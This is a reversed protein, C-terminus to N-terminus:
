FQSEITIPSQLTFIVLSEAPIRVPEDGRIVQVVAGGAAGVSSGIMAGIPGGTLAGVIAGVIGGGASTKVMKKGKSDNNERYTSTLIGISKGSFNLATIEMAVMSRGRFRGSQEIAVIRGIAEAGQPVAVEGNILVPADVSARFTEGPNSTDTDISESMRVMLSTGAPVTWSAGQALTGGVLAGMFFVALIASTFQKRVTM